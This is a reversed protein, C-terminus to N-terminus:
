VNRGYWALAGMGSVPSDLLALTATGILAAPLCAGLVVLLIRGVDVVRVLPERGGCGRLHGVVHELAYAAILTQTLNAAVLGLVLGSSAGSLGNGVAVVVGIGLVTWPRASGRS